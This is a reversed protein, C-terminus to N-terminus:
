LTHQKNFTKTHNVMRMVHYFFADKQLRHGCMSDAEYSLLTVYVYIDRKILMLGM